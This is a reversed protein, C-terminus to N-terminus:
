ISDEYLSHYALGVSNHSYRSAKQAILHRDYKDLSGLMQNIAKSLQLEDGPPVLIGVDQSVIEPTGGTRTSVMPLGSAMSELLVCPLNEWLSPLVFLDARRMFHAVEPKSKLGHFTVKDTIGLDASLEEYGDRAPGDGVIDLHWDERQDRLKSLAKILHPIGKKHSSDLLSVVLLHKLQNRANSSRGPHFLHTDVVNPVLRFRARIGYDEIAAKLSGSVPMVIDAWQFALRARWVASGRLLKRPFETSQETIVVPIHYLKGILVAPVGATYVHAHIIDPRFGQTVIRRFARWVSLLYFFYWTKPIPSPRSMVRYTPLDETLDKNTEQEMWWSRKLGAKPGACHLVVVEDYLRVAKAHERVFVGGM